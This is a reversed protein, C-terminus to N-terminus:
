AKVRVGGIVVSDSAGACCNVQGGHDREWLLAGTAADRAQHTISSYRQGCVLVASNGSDFLAIDLEVANLHRVPVEWVKVYTSPFTGFDVTYMAASNFNTIDFQCAYWASSGTHDIGRCEANRYTTFETTLDANWRRSNGNMVTSETIRSSINGKGTNEAGSGAALRILSGSSNFVALDPGDDAFITDGTGVAIGFGANTVSNNAWLLTGSSDYKKIQLIHRVLINGASDVAIGADTLTNNSGLPISLSLTGDSDYRRVYSGDSAAEGVVYVSGSADMVIDYVTAGHDRSWLLNGDVDYKRHTVFGNPIDDWTYYKGNELFALGKTGLPMYREPKLNLIFGNASTDVSHFEQAGPTEEYDPNAQWCVHYVNVPPNEGDSPYPTDGPGAITKFFRRPGAGHGGKEESMKPRNTRQEDGYISSM